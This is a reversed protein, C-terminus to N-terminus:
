VKLAMTRACSVTAFYSSIMLHVEIPRAMSNKMQMMPQKIRQQQQALDCGSFFFFAFAADETAGSSMPSISARILAYAGRSRSADADSPSRDRVYM